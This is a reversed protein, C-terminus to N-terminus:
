AYDPRQVDELRKMAALKEKPDDSRLGMYISKYLPSKRDFDMGHIVMFKTIAAALPVVETETLIISKLADVAGPTVQHIPVSQAFLTRVQKFESSAFENMASVYKADPEVSNIYQLMLLRCEERFKRQDRYPSAAIPTEIEKKFAAVARQPDLYYLGNITDTSSAFRHSLFNWAEEKESENLGVFYSPALGQLRESGTKKFFDYIPALKPNSTFTM